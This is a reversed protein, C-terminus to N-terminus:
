KAIRAEYGDLEKQIDTLIQYGPSTEQAANAM